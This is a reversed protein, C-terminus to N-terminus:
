AGEPNIPLHFVEPAENPDDPVVFNHRHTAVALNISDLDLNYNELLHMVAERRINHFVACQDPNCHNPSVDDHSDDCEAITVILGRIVHICAPCLDPYGTVCHPGGHCDPEHNYSM